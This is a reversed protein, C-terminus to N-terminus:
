YSRYGDSSVVSGSVVGIVVLFIATLIWNLGIQNFFLGTWYYDLGAFVAGLVGITVAAEIDSHGIYANMATSGMIAVRYSVALLWVPGFLNRCLSKLKRSGAPVIAATRCGYYWLSMPVHLCQMHCVLWTYRRFPEYSFCLIAGIVFVVHHLVDTAALRGGYGENLGRLLVLVVEFYVHASTRSGVYEALLLWHFVYGCLGCVSLAFILFQYWVFSSEQPSVPKEKEDKENDARFQIVDDDDIDLM